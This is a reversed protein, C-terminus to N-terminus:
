HSQLESTHEESRSLGFSEVWGTSKLRTGALINLGAPGNPTIDIAQGRMHPSGRGNGLPPAPEAVMKRTRAVDGGYEALKADWLQKQKENTRVGSTVMLKKGTRDLYAQAMNAVRKELESSFGVLNVGSNEKTTVSSLSSPTSTTPAAAVPTTAVPTAAQPQETPIAQEGTARIPPKPAPVVVPPTPQTAAPGPAATQEPKRKVADLKTGLIDEAEEVVSDYLEGYRENREPDKTDIVGYVEEYTDRATSAVTLPISSRFLM